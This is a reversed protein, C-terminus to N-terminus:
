YKWPQRGQLFLAVAAAYARSIAERIEPRQLQAADQDNTLFLAEGLSAPMLTPRKVRDSAPSLLFLHVQDFNTTDPRFGRPNPAYGAANLHRGIQQYILEALIKNDNSFPRDLAYFVETGRQNRDPYGNLHISIFVDPKWANAKDIRAQLDDNLTPGGVNVDTERTLLVEYGAERLIQATRKSLELVVMKEQMPAQGPLSSAAGVQNGGHGPDIV